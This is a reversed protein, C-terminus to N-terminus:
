EFYVFFTNKWTQWNDNINGHAVIGNWNVDKLSKDFEEEKFKKFSRATITKAAQKKKHLKRIAYVM